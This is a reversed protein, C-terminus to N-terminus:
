NLNFCLSAKLSASDNVQANLTDDDGGLEVDDNEGKAKGGGCQLLRRLCKLLNDRADVIAMAAFNDVAVELQLVHEHIAVAGHLNGIETQRARDLKTM